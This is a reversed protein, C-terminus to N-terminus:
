RQRIRTVDIRIRLDSDVSNISLRQIGREAIGEPLSRLDSVPGALVAPVPLGLRALAPLVLAECEVGGRNRAIRLVVHEESGDPLTVGVRMPCPTLDQMYFASTVRTGSPFLSVM